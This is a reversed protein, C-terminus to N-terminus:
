KGLASLWAVLGVAARALDLGDYAAVAADYLAAGYRGPAHRKVARRKTLWAARQPPAAFHWALRDMLDVWRTREVEGCEVFAFFLVQYHLRGAGVRLSELRRHIAAARARDRLAAHAKGVREGDGDARITPEVGVGRGYYVPVWGQSAFWELDVAAGRCPPDPALRPPTWPAPEPDRVIGTRQPVPPPPPDYRWEAGCEVCTAVVRRAKARWRAAPCFACAATPEASM